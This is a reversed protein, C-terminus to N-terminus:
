KKLAANLDQAALAAFYISSAYAYARSIPGDFSSYSEIYRSNLDPNNLPVCLHYTTGSVKSKAVVLVAAVAKEDQKIFAQFNFSYNGVAVEEGIPSLTYGAKLDRGDAIDLAYGKTLYNYETETTAHQAIAFLPCILLLYLIAKM